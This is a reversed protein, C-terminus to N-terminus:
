KRRLLHKKIIKVDDYTSDIKPKIGAVDTKINSIDSSNKGVKEPLDRVQYYSLAGNFLLTFVIIILAVLEKLTLSGICPSKITTKSEM